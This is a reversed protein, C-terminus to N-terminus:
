PKSAVVRLRVYDATWNGHSDRLVPALLETIADLARPRAERSLPALM